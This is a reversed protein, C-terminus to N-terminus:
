YSRQGKYVTANYVAKVKGDYTLQGRTLGTITATANNDAGINMLVDYTGINTTVTFRVTYYLHKLNKTIKWSNISGEATVGGVGNYGLGVNHGTQLIVNDPEIKIFNLSSTVPIRVGYQNSLFDAELVISKRQLLTDIAQFNAYLQAKRAEKQEQRTLQTDQANVKAPTWFCVMSLFLVVTYFRLKKM